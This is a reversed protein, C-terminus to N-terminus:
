RADDAGLYDRAQAATVEKGRSFEAEGALEERLRTVEPEGVPARGRLTEALGLLYAARARDGTLLIAGALGETADAADIGFQQGLAIGVAEQHLAVAESVAGESQALWGLATLTRSRAGAGLWDDGCRDLAREYWRRAEALEGRRRALKGLGLYAAALIAPIGGRRALDAAREYSDQAAALEDGHRLRDGRRAWLEALEEVAGLQGLLDIGEDTLSVARARDGTLDALTALGDLVQATGWRDGVERFGALSALFDPEAEEVRGNFLRLYSQSFDSLARFWADDVSAFQVQMPTPPADPDPPGAYTAWAILLHPQRLPWNLTRMIAEARRRHGEVESPGANLVTLVYEEELGAPTEPGLKELLEAALPIVDSLVGRLRWYSTLVGVLRLALRTDARVAWRLTARLNAHEATLRALWTLQEERRLHPDATRALELFFEAHARSVADLEGSEALRDSAYARITDLMRFRGGHVEALSKDVLGGLIDEADVESVVCVQAVSAVTAGGAFVALRRLLEQEEPTLLAWSWAVVAHLTQHRPAATRSGRSLLRFRDELRNELQALPITRLRAAALEIALPLRDLAACIRRVVDEDLAADPAAAAARDAFLRLATAERLPPLPCLAEGTIGLPERSTALVRLGPCATLLRHVLRAADAIVHECNDFVLLLSRDTLASVIRRVPDSLGPGGFLGRERLGLADLVAQSVESGGRLPALDVFCADTGAAEIALRTKGAGGPGTLTVLRAAELLEAVRILEDERGIFSTLQAPVATTRLPEARLAALHAAALEPSPDAGLEESLARRADEFVTLAEAQRGAVTLARILLSQLRERLPHANAAERLETVLASADGLALRAEAHHELAALRAEGLRAAQPEAFPAEVDALARGRWLALAEGLLRAAEAHDAARLAHQGDHTLRTFRHLDVDEPDVALRYGAPHLDIPVGLRRRLRSVQAQLANAAAGPPEEGYLADILLDTGVVRGADLLLLALLARPRPGGLAVETGDAARALVPGLVGFWM